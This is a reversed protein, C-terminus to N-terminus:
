HLKGKNILRKSWDMKLIGVAYVCPKGLTTSSIYKERKIKKTNEENM